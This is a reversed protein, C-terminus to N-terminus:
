KIGGFLKRDIEQKRKKGTDGQEELVTYIGELIRLSKGRDISVLYKVIEDTSLSLLSKAAQEAEMNEVVWINHPKEINVVSNEKLDCPKCLASFDLNTYRQVQKLFVKEDVVKYHLLMYVGVFALAFLFGLFGFIYIITKFIIGM